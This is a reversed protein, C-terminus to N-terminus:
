AALTTETGIRIEALELVIEAVDVPEPQERFEYRGHMHDIFVSLLPLLPETELRSSIKFQVKKRPYAFVGLNLGRPRRSMTNDM